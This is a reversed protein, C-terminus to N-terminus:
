LRPSNLKNLNVFNNWFVNEDVRMKEDFELFMSFTTLFMQCSGSVFICDLQSFMRNLHNFFMMSKKGDLATHSGGPREVHELAHQM